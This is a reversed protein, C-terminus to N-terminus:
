GNYPDRALKDVMRPCSSNRATGTQYVIGAPGFSMIHTTDRGEDLVIRSQSGVYAVAMRAIEEWTVFETGVGTFLERSHQSTLVAAYLRALDGAWIFQTGAGKTVHIQDDQKARRIMDAFTTDHSIAAGDVVPMGFTYGPRIVNARIGSEAAIALLYAETAAKTAGYLRTPRTTTTDSLVARLDGFALVSSTYILHTIGLEVATQFISLSPRTDADLLAVATEGRGLALHICADQGTLASTISDQDGLTGQVLGIERRGLFGRVKTVDRAFITVQHGTRVLEEVVYSGIFGTGGDCRCAGAEEERVSGM